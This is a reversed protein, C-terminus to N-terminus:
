LGVPTFLSSLLRAPRPDVSAVTTAFANRFADLAAADESVLGVVRGGTRMLHVPRGMAQHTSGSGIRVRGPVVYVSLNKKGAMYYVHAVKRDVLPCFRGGVLELGGAAAPLLPLETGHAAFWQTLQDPDETFVQAALQARDFCHAHDRSLEWAVFTAADRVWFGVLFLGAAVGLWVPLARRPPRLARRRARAELGAPMEPAPLTRLRARLGREFAEQDRCAACTALHGEVEARRAPPLADDVWATIAEPQCPTTPTM